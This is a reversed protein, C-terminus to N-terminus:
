IEISERHEFALNHIKLNPLFEELFQSQEELYDILDCSNFKFRYLNELEECKLLGAYSVIGLGVKSHTVKSAIIFNKLKLNATELPIKIGNYTAEKLYNWKNKLKKFVAFEDSFEESDTITLYFSQSKLLDKKIIEEFCEPCIDKTVQILYRDDNIELKEYKTFALDFDDSDSDDLFNYEEKFKDFEQISIIVEAKDLWEFFIQSTHEKSTNLKIDSISQASSKLVEKLFLAKKRKQRTRNM